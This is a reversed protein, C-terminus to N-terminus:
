ESPDGADVAAAPPEGATSRVAAELDSIDDAGRIVAQVTGTEDVVLWTPLAMVWLSEKAAGMPDIAVTGPAENRDLWNAVDGPEEDTIAVVRLAEGYAEDMAHVRPAVSRCPGCWTAWFEVITTTGPKWADVTGSGDLAFVEISPLTEGVWEEAVYELSQPRGGLVVDHTAGDHLTLTVTEGAAHSGVLAIMEEVTQVAAGDVATIIWGDQLNAAAAPSGPVVRDVQAGAMGEPADLIVGLWGPSLAAPEAPGPVPGLQALAPTAVTLAFTATLGILPRRLVLVIPASLASAADM